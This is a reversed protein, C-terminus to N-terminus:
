KRHQRSNRYRDRRHNKRDDHTHKRREHRRNNDYRHHRNHICYRTHVHHHVAVPPRTYYRHHRYYRPAHYYRHGYTGYVRYGNYHTGTYYGLTYRIHDRHDYTSYTTGVAVTSFDMTECGALLFLTAVLLIKM